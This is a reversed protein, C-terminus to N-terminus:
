IKSLKDMYFSLGPETWCHKCGRFRGKHLYWTQFRQRWAGWNLSVYRSCFTASACAEIRQKDYVNEPKWGSTGVHCGFSPDPHHSAPAVECSLEEDVRLLPGGLAPLSTFREYDALSWFGWASFPLKAFFCFDTSTIGLFESVSILSTQFNHRLYLFIHLAIM